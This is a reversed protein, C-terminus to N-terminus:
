RLAEVFLSGDRHEVTAIDPLTGVLFAREVVETFGVERLLSEVLDFTPQWRHIDASFLSVVRRKLTPTQLTLFCDITFDRGSITGAAVEDALARSDPLALRLTGGRVLVRYCERLVDQAQDLYLHELTHSSYAALVSGDPFPARRVHEHTPLLPM